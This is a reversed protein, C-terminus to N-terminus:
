NGSRIQGKLKANEQKLKAVEERCERLERELQLSRGEAEHARNKARIYPWPNDYGLLNWQHLTWNPSLYPYGRNQIRLISRGPRAYFSGSM